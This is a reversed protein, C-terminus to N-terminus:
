ILISFVGSWYGFLGFWYRFLGTILLRLAGFWYGILGPEIVLLVWILIWSHRSWEWSLMFWYGFFLCNSIWFAGSGYVFFVPRFGPRRLDIDLVFSYGFFLFWYGYLGLDIELFGQILLWCAGCWYGLFGFAIDSFDWILIWFSSDVDLFGQILEVDRKKTQEHEASRPWSSFDALVEQSLWVAEPSSHGRSSM